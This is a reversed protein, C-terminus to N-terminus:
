FLPLNDILRVGSIQAAIFARAQVTVNTEGIPKLSESDAIEVYELELDSAAFDKHIQEKLRTPSSQSLNNKIWNLSRHILLAKNKDSDNLLMNRSSLALGESSRETPVPIIQVPLALARTMHKIIALQQFDKEGFYARTPQVMEFFRKVVTAVGQFHGPRHTGEMGQDLGGLDINETMAGNPYLHEVEPLFVVQCPTHQRLLEIDKEPVRPYKKLDNPNNFQTPNVFISVVCLDNEACARNVLSLHGEHLAGMTPIFGVEKQQSIQESLHNKLLAPDRFVLM